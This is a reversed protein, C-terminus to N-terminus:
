DGLIYESHELNWRFRNLKLPTMGSQTFVM